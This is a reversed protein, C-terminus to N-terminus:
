EHNLQDVCKQLLKTVSKEVEQFSSIEKGIFHLAVFLKTNKEELTTEFKHRKLRYAEKMLRKCKNRKNARKFTRKPATFMCLIPKNEHGTKDFWLRNTPEVICYSLRIPYETLHKAHKFLYDIQIQSYLRHHKKLEYKSPTKNEMM